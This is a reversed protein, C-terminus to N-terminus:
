PSLVQSRSNRQRRTGVIYFVNRCIYKVYIDYLYAEYIHYIYLTMSNSLQKFCYNIRQNSEIFLEQKVETLM